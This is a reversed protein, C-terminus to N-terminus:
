PNDLANILKQDVDRFRIIKKGKQEKLFRKADIEHAFPVPEHGMPGYIDGWIVYSAKLADVPEKTYYDKVFVAAVYETTKSPNYKKMDLYYKFMCKSGDFTAVTLDKFEIAANWDSFMSVFMGCVPCKIKDQAAFCSPVTTFICGILCLITFCAIIIRM